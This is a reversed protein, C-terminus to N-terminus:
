PKCRELCQTSMVSRIPVVSRQFGTFENEIDTFNEEKICSPKQDSKTIM